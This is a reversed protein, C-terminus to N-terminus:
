CQWVKPMTKQRLAEVLRILMVRLAQGTPAIMRAVLMGNWASAGGEGLAGELAARAQGIMSEAEPAVLVLTAFATAGNGTAGGALMETMDGDLRTTDAFILKGDRRIRWSDSAFAQRV